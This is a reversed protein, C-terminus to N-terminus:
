LCLPCFMGFLAFFCKSCLPFCGSAHQATSHSIQGPDPSQRKCDEVPSCRVIIVHIHRLSSAAEQGTCTIARKWVPRQLQSLWSVFCKGCSLRRCRANGFRSVSGLPVRSSIGTPPWSIIGYITRERVKGYLPPTLKLSAGVKSALRLRCSYRWSMSSSEPALEPRAAGKLEPTTLINEMSASFTLTAPPFFANGLWFVMGAAICVSAQCLVQKCDFLWTKQWAYLVHSPSSYLQFNNYNYNQWEIKLM